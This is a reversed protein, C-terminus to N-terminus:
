KLCRYVFVVSVDRPGFTAAIDLCPDFKPNKRDIDISRVVFDTTEDYVRQLTGKYYYSFSEVGDTVLTNKNRGQANLYQAAQAFYEGSNEYIGVALAKRTGGFIPSYYGSFVPAHWWFVWALFGLQACIVALRIKKPVESLFISVVLLIAPFMVLSYRDIKKDSLTLFIYYISLYLYIYKAYAVMGIKRLFGFSIIFLGLILPSLKFLLILVYYAYPNIGAIQLSRVDDGVANVVANYFKTFVMPVAVWTAPFLLFFTTMFVGGWFVAVAFLKLFVNKENLIRGELYGAFVVLVGVGLILSTLKSLVALAFFVGSLILFKNHNLFTVLANRSVVIIKSDRSFKLWLLLSLFASFSFYTEMSTLHFWRDIGLIYPECAMFFGYLLAIKDSFLRRIFYIQCFLLGALVFVIGAKSIGHIVPFWDANELTKPIGTTTLQYSFAIQKIVANLWMITVGPQYHQYTAAFDGSKLAELFKESRRHWRGADSNTIDQGLGLLRVSLFLLLIIVEFRYKKLFRM